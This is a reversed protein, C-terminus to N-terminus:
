FFSIFVITEPHLLFTLTQIDNVVKLIKLFNKREQFLTMLLKFSFYNLLHYKTIILNKQTLLKIFIVLQQMRWYWKIKLSFFRGVYKSNFIHIFLIFQFFFGSCKLFCLFHIHTICIIWTTNSEYLDYYASIIQLYNAKIDVDEPVQKLLLILIQYFYKFKM